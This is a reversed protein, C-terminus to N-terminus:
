WKLRVIVACINLLELQLLYAKLSMSWTGPGVENQFYGKLPRIRHAAIPTNETLFFLNQSQLINVVEWEEVLGTTKFGFPVWLLSVILFFVSAQFSGIIICM